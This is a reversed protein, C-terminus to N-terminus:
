GPPAKLLRTSRRTAATTAQPAPPATIASPTTVASSTTTNPRQTAVAQSPRPKQIKPRRVPRPYRADYANVLDIASDLAHLPYWVNHESEADKWKVLYKVRGTSTIRRDLLAEIEYRKNPDDPDDDEETTVPQSNSSKFRNYPDAGEPAPELQAISIVPHIQMIPPLELKYALTGVKALVKFPGVRQQSLKENILGSITYGAHLRLFAKGGIKINAAAHNADYRLKHMVNAFAMAEEASERKIQRLRSYDEAPLDELLGLTDNVRFGYSLENLAFGTSANASNNNSATLYPLAEIWDKNEPNSLWFRLAIELIQNTREFQGDTQPHYATSTLLEIGLKKFIARWFASMFKRDRDSIVAHPIGWDRAMLATILINAWDEAGYTSKGALAMSKKTFKCTVTLACDMDDIFPLALIFDMALTHFPIAPTAIPQLSGYPSHRKIQNLQCESCHEIYIKLRKILQRIYVSNALRDYIRHFGSHSSLDHAIRFVEQEMASPICLRERGEGSTYYVLGERLKFRIGRLQEGSSQEPQKEGENSQETETM